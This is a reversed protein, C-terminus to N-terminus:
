AYEIGELPTEILKYRYNLINGFIQEDKIPNSGLNIIGKYVYTLHHYGVDSFILEYEIPLDYGISYPIFFPLADEDCNENYTEYIMGTNKDAYFRYENLCTYVNNSKKLNIDISTYTNDKYLLDSDKFKTYLRFECTTLNDVVNSDVIISYNSFDIYRTNNLNITSIGSIYSNETHPVISSNNLGKMKFKYSTPYYTAPNFVDTYPSIFTEYKPAHLSFECVSDDVGPDEYNVVIKIKKIEGSYTFGNIYYNENAIYRTMVQKFLELKDNVYININLRAWPHGDVMQLAIAIKEGISTENVYGQITISESAPALKPTKVHLFLIPFLFIIKLLKVLM